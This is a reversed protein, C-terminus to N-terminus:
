LMAPASTASGTSALSKFDRPPFETRTRSGGDAGIVGRRGGTARISRLAIRSDGTWAGGRM